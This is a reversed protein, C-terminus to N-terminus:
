TADEHRADVRAGHSWCGLAFDPERHDVRRTMAPEAIALRSEIRAQAEAGSRFAFGDIPGLWHCAVLVGGPDLAEVARGVLRDLADPTLFYAIESVVVLDFRGSPWDRPVDHREIVVNALAATRARAVAVASDAIDSALLRDCREALAASLEGNSCGPEYASGYRRHPLCALLVARKRAEYWRTRFRWPDPDARHLADFREAPTSCTPTGHKM